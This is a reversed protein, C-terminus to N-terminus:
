ANQRSALRYDTDWNQEGFFALCFDNINLESDPHYLVTNVHVQAGNQGTINMFRVFAALVFSRAVWPPKGPTLRISRHM